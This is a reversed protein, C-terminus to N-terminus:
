ISGSDIFARLFSHTKLVPIGSKGDTFSLKTVPQLFKGDQLMPLPCVPPAGYEWQTTHNLQGRPLGLCSSNGLCVILSYFAKCLSFEPFRYLTRKLGEASDQDAYTYSSVVWTLSLVVWPNCSVIGPALVLCPITDTKMLYFSFESVEHAM